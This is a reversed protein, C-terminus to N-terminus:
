SSVTLVACRANRVVGEATSGLVAHALHSSGRTAIVIMDAEIEAAYDVIENAPRGVLVKTVPTIGLDGLNKEVFGALNEQALAALQDVTPIPAVATGAMLPMFAVPSQVATICHLEAPKDLAIRKLWKKVSLSGDSFDTPVVIRLPTSM